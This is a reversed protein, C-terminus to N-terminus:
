QAPTPDSGDGWQIPVNALQLFKREKGYHTDANLYWTAQVLRLSTVTPPVGAIDKAMEVKVPVGVPLQVNEKIGSRDEYTNGNADFAKVQNGFNAQTCEEKLATVKIVIRVTRAVSDGYCGVLEVGMAAPAPNSTGSAATTGTAQAAADAPASLIEGAKKLVSGIKKIKLQAVAETPMVATLTWMTALALIIRAIRKM